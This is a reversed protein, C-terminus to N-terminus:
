ADLQKEKKRIGKRKLYKRLERLDENDTELQIIENKLDDVYVEAVEELLRDDSTIDEGKEFSIKISDRMLLSTIKRFLQRTEKEDEDELRLIGIEEGESIFSLTMKANADKKLLIKIIISGM